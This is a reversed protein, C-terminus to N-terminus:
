HRAAVAWRVQRLDHLLNRDVRGLALRQRELELAEYARGAPLLAHRNRALVTEIRQPEREAYELRHPLRSMCGRRRAQERSCRTRRPPPAGPPLARPPGGAPRTVRPARSSRPLPRRPGATPRAAPAAPRRM